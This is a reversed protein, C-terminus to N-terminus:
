LKKYVTSLRPLNLGGVSHPLYHIATSASKTLGAWGLAQHPTHCSELEREVWTIPFEQTLLPWSLCPCVGASYLRLKQRKTLPANDVATLMHQLRTVISSRPSVHHSTVQVNLGLSRVPDKTFPISAGSLHLHPDKLKGIFGELSICHCKPVKATMGTWDLWDGM